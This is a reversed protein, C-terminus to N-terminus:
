RPQGLRPAAAGNRGAPVITGAIEVDATATRFMMQVPSEHRLTEEAFAEVLEPDARVAAEFAPEQVLQMVASGILYATTISGAVLLTTVFVGLEDRSM